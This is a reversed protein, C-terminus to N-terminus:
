KKFLCQMAKYDKNRSQLLKKSDRSVKVAGAASLEILYFADYLAHRMFEHEPRSRWPSIRLFGVPLNVDSVGRTTIDTLLWSAQLQNVGLKEVLQFLEDNHSDRVHVIVVDSDNTMIQKLMSELETRNEWTRSIWVTHFIDWKEKKSYEILEDALIKGEYDASLVFSLTRWGIKKM